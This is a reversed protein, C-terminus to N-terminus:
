LTMKDQSFCAGQSHSHRRMFPTGPGWIRSAIFSIVHEPDSHHRRVNISYLFDLIYVQCGGQLFIQYLIFAKLLLILFSFIGDRIVVTINKLWVKCVCVCVRHVHEVKLVCWDTGTPPCTNVCVTVPVGSQNNIIEIRQLFFSKGFSKLRWGLPLRDAVTKYMQVTSATYGEYSDRM